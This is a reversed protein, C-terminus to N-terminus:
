FTTYFVNIKNVLFKCIHTDLTSVFYKWYSQATHKVM